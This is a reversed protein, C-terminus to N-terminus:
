KAKEAAALDDPSVERRSRRVMYMVTVVAAPCVLLPWLDGWKPYYFVLASYAAFSLIAFVFFPKKRAPYNWFFHFEGFAIWSIYPLWWQAYFFATVAIMEGVNALTGSPSIGGGLIGSIVWWVLIAALYWGMKNGGKGGDSVSHPPAACKM